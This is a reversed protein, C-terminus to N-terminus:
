TYSGFILAVPKKGQFSSLKLRKISKKKTKKGTSKELIVLDFDPAIENARPPATVKEEKARKNGGRSGKRGGRQRSRGLSDIDHKTLQGDKNSDLNQFATEGRTYEAKRIIGDGNVDYKQCLFEWATTPEPTNKEIKEQAVLPHALFLLGGALCFLRFIPHM